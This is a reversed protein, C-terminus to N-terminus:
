RVIEVSKISPVREKIIREVFGKLTVNRAPCGACAYLLRVQLVNDETVGVFEIDGGDGQLQSRIEEDIVAEVEKEIEKEEGM